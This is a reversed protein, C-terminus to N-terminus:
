LDFRGFDLEGDEKTMEMLDEVWIRDLTEVADKFNIDIRDIWVNGEQGTKAELWILILEKFTKVEGVVSLTEEYTHKSM